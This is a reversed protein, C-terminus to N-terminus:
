RKVFAPTHPGVHATVVNHEMFDIADDLNYSDDDSELQKLIIDVCKWYDYVIYPGEDGPRETVGLFADDFNDAILIDYENGYMEYILDEIDERTM